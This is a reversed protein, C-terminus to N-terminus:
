CEQEQKEFVGQIKRLWSIGYFSIAMLLLILLFLLSSLIRAEEFRYQSMWRSLLLSVPAVHESYFFSVVGLEGLSAGAVGAAISLLPGKWRMWDVVRFAQLWSAGMLLASDMQQVPMTQSVPWLLRFAFPFFLVTQFFLIVFFSQEFLDVWAGYAIWAGLSLVLASLGSPLGLLVLLIRDVGFKMGRPWRQCLLVGLVAASATLVTLLSTCGAIQLSYRLSALIPVWWESNRGYVSLDQIWLMAAYPLLFFVSCFLIAAWKVQKKHSHRLSKTNDQAAEQTMEQTVEQKSRFYLVLLWPVGTLLIEWCACAVAASMNQM